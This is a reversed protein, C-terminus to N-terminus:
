VLWERMVSCADELTTFTVPIMANGDVPWSYQDSRGVAWESNVAFIPLTVRIPLRDYKWILVPIMNMKEAARNCQVLWDKQYWSGKAYRKCEICFPELTIDPLDVEQFQSLNRRVSQSVLADGLIERLEAICTREFAAGKDRSRKSM